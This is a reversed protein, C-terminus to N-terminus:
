YYWPIGTGTQGYALISGDYGDTFDRVISACSAIYIDGHTALPGFVRDFKFERVDYIDRELKITQGDDCINVCIDPSGKKVILRKRDNDNTPRVRIAVRIKNATQIM